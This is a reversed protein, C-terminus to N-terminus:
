KILKKQKDYHDAKRKANKLLANASNIHDTARKLESYGDDIFKLRDNLTMRQTTFAGTAYSSSKSILNSAAQLHVRAKNVADPAIRTVMGDSMLNNVAQIQNFTNQQDNFFDRVKQVSQINTQGKDYVESLLKTQEELKKYQESIAKGTNVA